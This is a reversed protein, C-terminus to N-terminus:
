EADEKSRGQRRVFAYLPYWYTRCLEELARDAEPTARRGATLVVTWHTTAFIAGGGAKAALAESASHTTSDTTAAQGTRAGRRKLAIPAARRQGARTGPRSHARSRDQPRDERSDP